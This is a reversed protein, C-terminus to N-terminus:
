ESKPVSKNELEKVLENYLSTINQRFYNPKNKEFALIRKLKNTLELLLTKNKIVYVQKDHGIYEREIYDKTIPIVDSIFFISKKTTNGIHYYCSRLDNEPCDLYKQIRSSADANRHSLDGIPIAWFIGPHEFSEILCVIPREKSDAWIGGLSRIKEYIANKGFYIANKQM